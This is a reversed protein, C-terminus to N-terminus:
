KQKHRSIQIREAAERALHADHHRAKVHMTGFPGVEVVEIQAGLAIGREELHRLFQEEHDSVRRVEGREGAALESLPLFDQQEISGTADPIPAGHPDVEPHGLYRDIHEILQDSVAHELREADSHVQEWGLGLTQVLFLEILRHRRIIQLALREGAETLRVGQYPQYDVLGRAALQKLMGSVTGRGLGTRDAIAKTTARRGQSLLKWIHKLYDEVAVSHSQTTFGQSM